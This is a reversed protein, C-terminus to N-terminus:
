ETSGVGEVQGKKETAATGLAYVCLEMFDVNNEAAIGNLRSFSDRVDAPVVGGRIENLWRFQDQLEAYGRPGSIVYVHFPYKKGSFDCPITFRKMGTEKKKELADAAFREFYARDAETAGSPVKGKLPLEAYRDLLSLDKGHQRLRVTWGRRLLPQVEVSEGVENWTSAADFCLGGYADKLYWDWPREQLSWDCLDLTQQLVESAEKRQGSRILSSIAWNLQRILANFEGSTKLDAVHVDKYCKQWFDVVQEYRRDTMWRGVLPETALSFGSVSSTRESRSAASYLTIYRQTMEDSLVRLPDDPNLDQLGTTASNVDTATYVPSVCSYDMGEFEKQLEKLQTLSSAKTAESADAALYAAFHPALRNGLLKGVTFTDGAAAAKQYWSESAPVDKPVGTGNLYCNGVLRCAVPDGADAARRYWQLALEPEPQHTMGTEYLGGIARMSVSNGRDAAKTYWRLAESRDIDVGQGLESALGLTHMAFDNGQAASKQLWVLAEAEDKKVAVGEQYCRGIFLEAIADGAEAQEKWEPYRVSVSRQLFVVSGRGTRVNNRYEAYESELPNPWLVVMAMLAIFVPVGIGVCRQLIRRPVRALQQCVASFCKGAITQISQLRSVPPATVSGSRPSEWSQGPELVARVVTALRHIHAEVPKTLADLWHPASLFFEMSKSPVVAEIRFPIIPIGKSVAREVERLVHPSDNSASSLVVVMSRSVNIGNILAEGYEIGPLIDRPAIWCRVKEAELKACIADAIVKDRSSYSIFVDRPAPAPREARHEHSAKAAQAGSRPRDFLGKIQGAPISKESGVQWIIATPALKGSAALDKLQQSSIPGGRQEVDSYMFQPVKSRSDPPM